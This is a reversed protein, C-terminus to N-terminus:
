QLRFPPFSALAAQLLDFEMTALEASKCFIIYHAPKIRQEQMFAYIVARIRRKIRNRVVARKDVKTSVVIAFHPYKVNDDHWVTLNCYEGNFRKGQRSVKPILKTPIRYHKALVKFTLKDVADSYSTKPLEQVL